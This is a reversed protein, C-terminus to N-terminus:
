GADTPSEVHTWRRRHVIKWVTGQAIGYTRGIKHQSHGQQAMRIISVVHAETLKAQSNREGFLHRSKAKMDIHNDKSTGLFLHDPNVCKPNDCTHCVQMNQPIPGIHALYSLRHAYIQRRTRPIKIQGYGNGALSATWVWCGDIEEWKEHFREMLVASIEM